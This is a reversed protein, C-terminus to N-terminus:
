VHKVQVQNKPQQANILDIQHQKEERARRDIREVEQLYQRHRKIIAAVENANKILGEIKEFQELARDKLFSYKSLILGKTNRFGRSAEQLGSLVRDLATISELCTYEASGHRLLLNNAADHCDFTMIDIKELLEITEPFKNKASLFKSRAGFYIAVEGIGFACATTAVVGVAISTMIVGFRLDDRWDSKAQNVSGFLLVGCAGIRILKKM